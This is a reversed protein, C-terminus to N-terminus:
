QTRLFTGSSVICIFLGADVTYESKQDINICLLVFYYKILKCDINYHKCNQSILCKFQQPMRYLVFDIYFQRYYVYSMCLGHKVYIYGKSGVFRYKPPFWSLNDVSTTIRKTKQLFFINSSLQKEQLNSHCTYVVQHCVTTQMAM